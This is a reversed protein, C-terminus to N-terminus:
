FVFDLTLTLLNATLSKLAADTYLAPYTPTEGRLFMGRNPVATSGPKRIHDYQMKLAVNKYFDYRVGLSITSQDQRARLSADAANVGYALMDLMCPTCPSVALPQNLPLEKDRLESYSLYPTFKGVRYGGMLYWSNTDVVAPGGGRAQIFEGQVLWKGNDYMYGLDLLGTKIDNPSMSVDPHGVLAGYGYLMSLQGIPEGTVSVKNKTYGVRYTSNDKEYNLSLAKSHGNVQTGWESVDPTLEKIKGFTGQVSLNGGALEFKYGLDAGDIHTIPNQGYIDYPMRVMTQSYGVSRYDSVMFVPAVIRGIRVYADQGIQYKLNAWEFRPSYTNDYRRDVVVQVITSLDNGIKASAQVGAKTDIGANTARTRGVGNPQFLSTVFDTDRNDSHTIGLTGFGAFSIDADAWATGAQILGAAALALIVTNRKM